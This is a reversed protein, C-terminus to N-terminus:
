LYDLCKVARPSSPYGAIESNNKRYTVKVPKFGQCNILNVDVDAGVLKNEMDSHEKHRSSVKLWDCM